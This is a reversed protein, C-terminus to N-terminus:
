KVEWRFTRIDAGGVGTLQLEFAKLKESPVDFRLVGRRHHGGPPDGQWAVATSRHGADDVLVAAAAVDESLPRIHTDMAIEFEWVKASADIAKPTVVVRVGAADSTRTDGPAASSVAMGIWAGLAALVAVLLVSILKLM